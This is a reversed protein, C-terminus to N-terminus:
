TSATLEAVFTRVVVVAAQPAFANVNVRSLGRGLHAVTGVPEVALATILTLRSKNHERVHM